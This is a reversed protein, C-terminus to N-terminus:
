TKLSRRTFKLFTNRRGISVVATIPSTLYQSSGKRYASLDPTSTTSRGGTKIWDYTLVESKKCM